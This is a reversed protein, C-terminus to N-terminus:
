ILDVIPLVSRSLTQSSCVTRVRGSPRVWNSIPVWRMWSTVSDRLGEAHEAVQAQLDEVRVAGEGRDVVDDRGVLVLLGKGIGEGVRHHLFEALVAGLDPTVKKSRGEPLCPMTWMTPGSCPMVWGPVVIAQPSECVEVWPAKPAMAKPM